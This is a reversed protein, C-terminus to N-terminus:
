RPLFGHAVLSGWRHHLLTGSDNSIQTEDLFEPAALHRAAGASKAQVWSIFSTPTARLSEVPKIWVTPPTNRLLGWSRPQKRLLMSPCPTAFPSFVQGHHNESAFTSLPSWPNYSLRQAQELEVADNHQKHYIAGCRDTEGEAKSSLQPNRTVSHDKTCQWNHYNQLPTASWKPQSSSPVSGLSARWCFTDHSDLM